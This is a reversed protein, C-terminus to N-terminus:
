TEIKRHNKDLKKLNMTEEWEIVDEKNHYKKRESNLIAQKLM